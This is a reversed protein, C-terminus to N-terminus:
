DAQKMGDTSVSLAFCGFLSSSHLFEEGGECDHSSGFYQGACLFARQVCGWFRQFSYSVLRFCLGDQACGHFPYSLEDAFKVPLSFTSSHPCLPFVISWGVVPTSVSLRAYFWPLAERFSIWLNWAVHHTSTGAHRRSLIEAYCHQCTLSPSSTLAGLCPTQSLGHPQYDNVIAVFSLEQRRALSHELPIPCCSPMESPLFFHPNVPLVLRAISRRSRFRM